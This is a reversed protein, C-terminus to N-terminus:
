ENTEDTDDASILVFKEYIDDEPFFEEVDFRWVQKIRGTDSASLETLIFDYNPSILEYGDPLYIEFRGQKLPKGWAQITTVIYGIENSKLKQSYRCAMIKTQGKPYKFKYAFSSGAPLIMHHYTNMGRTINWEDGANGNADTVIVSEPILAGVDSYIPFEIMRTIDFPNDNEFFFYGQIELNFGDDTEVVNMIVKEAVFDVSACIRPNIYFLVLLIFGIVLAILFAIIPKYNM